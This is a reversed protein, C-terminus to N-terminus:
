RGGSPTSSRDDSRHGAHFTRIVVSRIIRIAIEFKVKAPVGGTNSSPATIAASSRVSSILAGHRLHAPKCDVTELPGRRRYVVSVSRRRGRRMPARSRYNMAGLVHDIAVTGESLPLLAIRHVIGMAPLTASTLSRGAEFTVDPDDERYLRSRREVSVTSFCTWRDPDRCRRVPPCTLKSM